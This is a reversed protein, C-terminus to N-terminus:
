SADSRITRIMPVVSREGMVAAIAGDHVREPTRADACVVIVGGPAILRSATRLYAENAIREQYFTLVDAAMSWADLLAISFDGADSAYTM